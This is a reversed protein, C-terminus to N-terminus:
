FKCLAFTICSNVYFIQRQSGRFHNVVGLNSIVASFWCYLQILSIIQHYQVIEKGLSQWFTAVRFDFCSTETLGIWDQTTEIAPSKPIPRKPRSLNQDSSSIKCALTKNCVYKFWHFTKNLFFHLRLGVTLWCWCMIKMNLKSCVYKFWNPIIGVLTSNWRDSQKTVESCCWLSNTYCWSTHCKAQRYLCKNQIFLHQQNKIYLFTIVSINGSRFPV